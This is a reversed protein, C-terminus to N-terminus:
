PRPWRRDALVRPLPPHTSPIAGPDCRPAFGEEKWIVHLAAVTRPGNDLDDVGLLVPPPGRFPDHLQRPVPLCVGAARYSRGPVEEAIRM